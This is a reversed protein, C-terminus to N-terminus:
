QPADVLPYALCFQKDSQLVMSQGDEAWSVNGAAFDMEALDRKDAKLMLNEFSWFTSSPIAIGEMIGPRPRSVAELGGADDDSSADEDEDAGAPAASPMKEYWVLVSKEGSVLACSEPGRGATAPRWRARKIPKNTQVICCLRPRTATYPLAPSSRVFRLMLAQSALGPCCSHVLLFKGSPSFSISSIGLERASPALSSSKSSTSTSTSALQSCPVLSTEFSVISGSASANALWDAPERHVPQWRAM